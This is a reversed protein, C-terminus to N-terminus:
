FNSINTKQGQLELQERDRYKTSKKGRGIWHASNCSNHTNQLKLCPKTEKNRALM